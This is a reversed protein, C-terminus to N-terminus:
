KKSKSLNPSYKSYSGISIDTKIKKFRGKGIGRVKTIDEIKTFKNKNRFDIIKQALKPGIGKLSMLEEKSATNINVLGFLLSSTLLFYLFIVKLFKM